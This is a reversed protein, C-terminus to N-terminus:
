LKDNNRTPLTEYVNEAPITEYTSNGLSPLMVYPTELMAEKSTESSVTAYPNLSDYEHDAHTNGIVVDDESVTYINNVTDKSLRNYHLEKSAHYLPNDTEQLLNSTSSEYNSRELTSQPSAILHPPIYTPNETFHDQREDSSVSIDTLIIYTFARKM